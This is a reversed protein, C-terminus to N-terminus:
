TASWTKICHSALLWVGGSTSRRDKINGGWDTDSLVHCGGPEDQWRYEWVMREANILYRAVTKFLRWSGRTPRAM